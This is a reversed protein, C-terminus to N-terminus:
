QEKRENDPVLGVRKYIANNIYDFIPITDLMSAGEQKLLEIVKEAVRARDQKTLVKAEATECAVSTAATQMERIIADVNSVNEVYLIGEGKENRASVKKGIIDLQRFISRLFFHHNGEETVIELFRPENTM